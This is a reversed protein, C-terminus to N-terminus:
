NSLLELDMYVSLLIRVPNNPTRWSKLFNVCSTSPMAAAYPRGGARDIALYSAGRSRPPIKTEVRLLMPTGFPRAILEFCGVRLRRVVFRLCRKRYIM